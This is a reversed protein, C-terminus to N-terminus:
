NGAPAATALEAAAEDQHKNHSQLEKLRSAFFQEQTELEMYIHRINTGDAIEERTLKLNERTNALLQEIRKTDRTM